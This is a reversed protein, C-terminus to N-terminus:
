DAGSIPRVSQREVLEVEIIENMSMKKKERIMQFLADAAREAKISINQSITTLQPTSYRCEQLNDFGIVSIDQPVRKGNLRLGHILGLALIDATAFVATVEEEAFAIKKGIGVGDEYSTGIAHQSSISDGYGCEGMAKLYGNYRKEVVNGEIYCPGVFCISRHGKSILYKTAIYGGKFDDVGINVIEKEDAYTDIFVMPLRLQKNLERVEHSYAGLFVVGDVNWTNIVPIIEKCSDVCRVMLYYGNKRIWKELVGLIEANYPSQLFNENEAVYPIVVGILKSEKVALSRAVANPVYHHKKIIEQIEDIKEASVKKYNGNIVNSVTVSSVGAEKAIDKLTIM